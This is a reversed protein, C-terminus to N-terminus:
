NSLSFFFFFVYLGLLFFVNSRALWRSSLTFKSAELLKQQSSDVQLQCLERIRYFLCVRVRYSPSLFLIFWLELTGSAKAIYRPWKKVDLKNM